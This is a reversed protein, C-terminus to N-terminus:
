EICVSVENHNVEIFGGETECSLKEGNVTYEITGKKLSSVIPAHCPLVTFRGLGGPVTVSEAQGDFLTKEPSVIVIHLSKAEM